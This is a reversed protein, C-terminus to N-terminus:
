KLAAKNIHTKRRESKSGLLNDRISKIYVPVIYTM